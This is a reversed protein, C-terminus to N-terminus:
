RRESKSDLVRHTHGKSEFCKPPYGPPRKNHWASVRPIESPATVPSSPLCRKGTRGALASMLPPDHAGDDEGRTGQATVGGIQRIYTNRASDDDYRTKLSSIMSFKHIPSGYKISHFVTYSASALCFRQQLRSKSDPDGSIRDPIGAM